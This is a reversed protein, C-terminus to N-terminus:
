FCLGPTCCYSSTLTVPGSTPANITTVFPACFCDAANIRYVRIRCRGTENCGSSTILDAELSPCGNTTACLLMGFPSVYTNNESFCYNELATGCHGDITLRFESFKAGDFLTFEWSYTSNDTRENVQDIQKEVYQSLWEQDPNEVWTKAETYFFASHGTLRCEKILDLYHTMWYDFKSEQKVTQSPILYENQCASFCFIGLLALFCTAALLRLFLNNDKM